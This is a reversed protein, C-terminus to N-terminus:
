KTLSQWHNMALGKKFSKLFYMIIGHQITHMVDIVACMFIGHANQGMQIRNFTNDVKYMTLEQLAYDSGNRCINNITDVDLFTCEVDPNDLDDFLCDCSQHHHNMSSCHGNMRGCLQDGQKSVMM